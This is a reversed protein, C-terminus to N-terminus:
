KASERPLQLTQSNRSASFEKESVFFLFHGILPPLRKKTSEATVKIFYKGAELDKIGSIKIDIINLSWSLMSEVDRFRKEISINGEISVAIYERKIPDSKLTKIIKKGKVFEDPWINWVRFLDVYFVLEKTMGESLDEVFKPEVSLSASVSIENNGIINVSLPSLQYSCVTNPFLFNVSLFILMFSLLIMKQGIYKSALSLM